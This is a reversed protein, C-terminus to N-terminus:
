GAHSARPAGVTRRSPGSIRKRKNLHMFKGPELNLSTGLAEGTRGARAANRANARLLHTLWDFETDM